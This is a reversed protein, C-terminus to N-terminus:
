VDVNFRECRVFLHQPGRIPGFIFPMCEIVIIAGTREGAWICKIVRTAGPGYIQSLTLVLILLSEFM